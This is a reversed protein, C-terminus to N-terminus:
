REDGPPLVRGLVADVTRAAAAPRRRRFRRWVLVAAVVALALGIIALARNVTRILGVIASWEAGIVAGVVTVGGYWLASAAITPVLARRPALGILGTFPPVIARIGPMLRCLFIAPLGWRLYEREVVAV